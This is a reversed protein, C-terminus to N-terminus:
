DSFALFIRPFCPKTGISNKLQNSHNFPESLSRQAMIRIAFDIACRANGKSMENQHSSMEVSIFIFINGRILIYKLHHKVNITM